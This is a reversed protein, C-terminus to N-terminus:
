NRPKDKFPLLSIKNIHTNADDDISDYEDNEDNVKKILKKYNENGIREYLSMACVDEKLGQDTRTLGEQVEEIEPTESHRKKIRRDVELQRKHKIYSLEIHFYFDLLYQVFM